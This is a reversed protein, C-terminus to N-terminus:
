SRHSDSSTLITCYLHNIFTVMGYRSVELCGETSSFHLVDAPVDAIHLPCDLPVCVAQVYVGTKVGEM